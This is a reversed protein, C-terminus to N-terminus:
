VVKPPTFKAMEVKPPEPKPPPPPPPPENKKEEQKIEQLQVDQVVMEKKNNSNSIKNAIVSGLFLLVFIAAVMVLATVMRKNYTKRLEYAGYEKNRNDFIIDLVDATLIKNVEM